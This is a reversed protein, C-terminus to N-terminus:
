HTALDSGTFQHGRAFSVIRRMTRLLGETTIDDPPLQYGGLLGRHLFDMALFLDEDQDLAIVHTFWDPMNFYLYQCINKIHTENLCCQPLNNNIKEATNDAADASVPEIFCLLSIVVLLPADSSSFLM